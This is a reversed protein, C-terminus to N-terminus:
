GIVGLNMALCFCGTVKTYDLTCDTFGNATTAINEHGNMFISANFPLLYTREGAM